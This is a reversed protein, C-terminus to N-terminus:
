DINKKFKTPPFLELFYDLKNTQIFDPNKEVVNSTRGSTYFAVFLSDRHALQVQDETIDKDTVSIGYANYKKAIPFIWDFAGLAFVKYHSKKQLLPQILAEQRLEIFVTEAIKYKEIIDIIEDVFTAIYAPTLPNFVKCDFTLIFNQPLNIKALMSDLRMVPTKKKFFQQYYVGDIEAWTLDAIKGTGSTQSDLFEDHYLVFVGDRTLQIDVETGIAGRNICGQIAPLSNMPNRSNPGLGGHGFVGITNQNLNQIQSLDPAPSCSTVGLLLLIFFSISQFVISRFSTTHQIIGQYM